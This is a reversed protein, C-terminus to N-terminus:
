TKGLEADNAYRNESGEGGSVNPTITLIVRITQYSELAWEQVKRPGMAPIGCNLTPGIPANRLQIRGWIPIEMKGSFNAKTIEWTHRAKHPRYKLHDM